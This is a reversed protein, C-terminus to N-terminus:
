NKQCILTMIGKQPWMNGGGFFIRELGGMMVGLAYIAMLISLSASNPRADSWFGPMGGSRGRVGYAFVGKGTGVGLLFTM